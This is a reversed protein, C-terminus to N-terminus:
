KIIKLCPKKEPQKYDEHYENIYYECKCHLVLYGRKKDWKIGKIYDIKIDTDVGGVSWEDWWTRLPPIEKYLPINIKLDDARICGRPDPKFVM